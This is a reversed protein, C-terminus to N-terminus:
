FAKMSQADVAFSQGQRKLVFYGKAHAEETVEAPISFGAVGGYLKM